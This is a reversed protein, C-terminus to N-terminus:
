IVIVKCQSQSIKFTKIFCGYVHIVKPYLLNTYIEFYLRKCVPVHIYM